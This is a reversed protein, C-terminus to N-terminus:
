TNGLEVYVEGDADITLKMKKIYRDYFQKKESTSMEARTARYADELVDQINFQVYEDLAAQVENLVAKIKIDNSNGTCFDDIYCYKYGGDVLANKIDPGCKSHEVMVLFNAEPLETILGWYDSDSSVLIFDNVGDRYHERSASATLRIDVLSKNDKLREILIYEIPIETFDELISWASATNVDDFLVIKSIKALLAQQDLNNLTAYLKYPDSNECDVMMVVRESDGLFRYIGAKTMNGADSIKSMDYFSDENAEYLLTVFKKDNYLINGKNTFPWTIYVGYPYGSKNEYYENAARKIGNESLGDPMIFIARIYEWKLWIPFIDKCNNIRNNIHANIDLIYQNPKINAKIISIGDSELENLCEQPIYEPLTHLNKLDYCMAKNIKGYNREIATRLMCLNRIIRANKNFRLKNYWDFEPPQVDNEFITKPVGILYAIKSIVTYTSNKYDMTLSSENEAESDSVYAIVSSDYYETM